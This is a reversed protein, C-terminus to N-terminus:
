EGTGGPRIIFWQSARRRRSAGWRRAIESKVRLRSMGRLLKFVKVVQELSIKGLIIVDVLIKLFQELGVRNFRVDPLVKVRSNSIAGLRAHM